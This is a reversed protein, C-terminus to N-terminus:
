IYAPSMEERTNRTPTGHVSDMELAEYRVWNRGSSHIGEQADKTYKYTVGICLVALSKLFVVLTCIYLHHTSSDYILCEHYTPNNVDSWLICSKNLAYSFYILAPIYGPLHFPINYYNHKWRYIISTEVRCARASSLDLIDCHILWPCFM